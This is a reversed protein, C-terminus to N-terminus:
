DGRDGKDGQSERRQLYLWWLLATFGFCVVVSLYTLATFTEGFAMSVIFMGCAVSGLLAGALFQHPNLRDLRGERRNM